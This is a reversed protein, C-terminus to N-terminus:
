LHGGLDNGKSGSWVFLVVEIRYSLMEFLGSRVLSLVPGFKIGLWYEVRV